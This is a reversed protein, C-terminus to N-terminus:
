LQTQIPSLDWIITGFHPNESDTLKITDSLSAGSQGRNGRYRFNVCKTVFHEFTTCRGAVM